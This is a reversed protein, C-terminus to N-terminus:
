CGINFVNLNTIWDCFLALFYSNPKKRVLYYSAYLCLKQLTMQILGSARDQCWKKRSNNEVRGPSECVNSISVGLSKLYVEEYSQHLYEKQIAPSIKQTVGWERRKAGPHVYM